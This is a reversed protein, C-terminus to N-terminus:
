VWIRENQHSPPFNAKGDPMFNHLGNTRGGILVWEGSSTQGASFSQLTPFSAQRQELQKLEVTWPESWSSLPSATATQDAGTASLPLDATEAMAAARADIQM